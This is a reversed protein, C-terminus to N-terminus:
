SRISRGENFDKWTERFKASALIWYYCSRMGGVAKYHQSRSVDTVNLAVAGLGVLILFEVPTCKVYFMDKGDYTVKSLAVRKMRDGM